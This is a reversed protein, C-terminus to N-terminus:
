TLAGISAELIDLGEDLEAATINLAPFLRIVTEHTLNVILGRRLAQDRVEGAMAGAALELGLLLGRGRVNRIIAPYGAQWHAFRRMACAGLTRVNQEVGSEILHRIVAYAVACGLPNGHYTGGHDGQELARGVAESMALAGFPFGGGIGKAMCLFDVKVNRGSVAFAPGTRFFGTQVEDVILFAGHRVCLESVRELYDDAPVNVGGEGQIPELLVAAVDNRIVKAVAAVNDYPVYLHNPMLPRFRDRHKAQGTATTTSITRGHFSNAASIVNPKGAVKRALKLAADNSEAGSNTFHIRTLREPLVRKMLEILRARCPSYTAGSNPGQILARSQATLARTILPHAHGISTVGWGATFDLYRTGAEDWVHVGRGRVFSLPTKRAFPALHRDEVRITDTRPIDTTTSM